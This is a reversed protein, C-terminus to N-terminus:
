SRGFPKCNNIEASFHHFGFVSAAVKLAGNLPVEVRQASAHHVRKERKNSPNRCIHTFQHDTTPRCVTTRTTSGLATMASTRLKTASDRHRSQDTCVARQHDKLHQNVKTSNTKGGLVARRTTTTALVWGRTSFYGTALYKCM